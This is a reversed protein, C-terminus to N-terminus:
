QGPMNQIIVIIYTSPWYDNLDQSPIVVFFKVPGKRSQDLVLQDSGLGNSKNLTLVQELFILGYISTVVMNTPELGHQNDLPGLILPARHNVM